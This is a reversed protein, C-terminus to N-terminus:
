NCLYELTLALLVTNIRNLQIKLHKLLSPKYEMGLFIIYIHVYEIMHFHPDEYRNFLQNKWFDLITTLQISKPNILTLGFSSTLQNLYYKSFTLIKSYYDQIIKFKPDNRFFGIDDWEWSTFFRDLFSHICSPLDMDPLKGNKGQVVVAINNYDDQKIDVALGQRIMGCRKLNHNDASHYDDLFTQIAKGYQIDGDYGM